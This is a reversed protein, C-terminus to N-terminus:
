GTVTADHIADAPCPPLRGAVVIRRGLIMPLPGSGSAKLIILLWGGDWSKPPFVYLTREVREARPVTWGLSVQRETYAGPSRDLYLMPARRFQGATITAERPWQVTASEIAVTDDRPNIVTLRVELFRGLYVDGKWSFTRNARPM